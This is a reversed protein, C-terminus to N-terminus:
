ELALNFWRLAESVNGTGEVHEAVLKEFRLKIAEPSRDLEAAIQHFTMNEYRRLRIMEREESQTWRRLTSRTTPITASM